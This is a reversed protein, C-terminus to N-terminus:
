RLKGRREGEVRGDTRSVLVTRLRLAFAEPVHLHRGLIVKGSVSVM